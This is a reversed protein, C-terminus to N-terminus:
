KLEGIRLTIDKIKSSKLIEGLKKLIEKKRVTLEYLWSSDDVNVILRSGQLSRPKSHRAAKEGVASDWAADVDEETFGGKKTIGGIIKKLVDGLPNETNSGM